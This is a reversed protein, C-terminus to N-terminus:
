KIAGKERLHAIYAEPDEQRALLVAQGRSKGETCLETVRAEFENKGGTNRDFMKLKGDTGFSASAGNGQKAALRLAENEAKLEENIEALEVIKAKVEEFAFAEQAEKEDRISQEAKASLYNLAGEVSSLDTEEGDDEDEDEDDEEDDDDESAFQILEANFQQIAALSDEFKKLREDQAEFMKLLKEETSLQNESMGSKNTDVKAEFLGSPNAAPQAVLDVAVLESCRAFKKGGKNEEKGLFAASLGVNKPMRTALELAQSYREHSKLLHWDAKLKKGEFHFNDLYGCVADAGSKHNWKVPVSGMKAACEHIQELTKDDVELDHGRATVGSTIVSVGRIVGNSEDVSENTLATVNFTYLNLAM